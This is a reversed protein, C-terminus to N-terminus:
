KKGEKSIKIFYDFIKKSDENELSEPHWQLGIFFPKNSDEIIEIINDNSYGTINLETKKVAFKHRSNVIIKEKKLIKYIKSGKDILVEHVNEKQQNHNKIEYLNGNFAVAMTQMGLCIGLLPINKLHAYQIIEIEEKTFNDGGQIIIGNIINLLKKTDQINNSINLQIPIGDSSIIKNVIDTYNYIIKNKSPLTEHKGIIGLIPKM